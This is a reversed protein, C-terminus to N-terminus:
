QAGARTLSFHGKTLRDTFYNGSLEGHGAESFKLLASGRYEHSSHLNKDKPVIRYVYFLLPRGSVPDKKPHAILTESDSGASIVEMSISMLDQKIVASANVVGQQGRTPNKWHIEMNWTGSLNPFLVNNLIPIKKWIPKWAFRLLGLLLLNLITAGGIAVRWGTLPSADSSFIWIVGSILSVTAAYIVAVTVLLRNLPVLSIM